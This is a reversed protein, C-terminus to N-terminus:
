ALCQRTKSVTDAENEKFAFSLNKRAAFPRWKKGGKQIPRSNARDM